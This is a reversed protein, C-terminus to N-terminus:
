YITKPAARLKIDGLDAFKVTKVIPSFNLPHLQSRKPYFDFLDLDAFKVSKVTPSFNLDASRVM